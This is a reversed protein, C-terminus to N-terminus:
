DAFHGAELARLGTEANDGCIPETSIQGRKELTAQARSEYRRTTPWNGWFVNTRRRTCAERSSRCPVRGGTSGLACNKSVVRRATGGTAWLPSIPSALANAAVSFGFATTRTGPMCFARKATANTALSCSTVGALIHKGGIAAFLRSFPTWRNAALQSVLFSWCWSGHM